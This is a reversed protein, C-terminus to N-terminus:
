EVVHFVRTVSKNVNQMNQQINAAKSFRDNVKLTVSAKDILDQAHKHDLMSLGDHQKLKASVGVMNNKTLLRIMAADEIAQKTQETVSTVEQETLAAIDQEVQIKKTVTDLLDKKVGNVLKAVNSRSTGYKDSLEQQTYGGARWDALLQERDYMVRM